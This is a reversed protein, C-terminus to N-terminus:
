NSERLRYTSFTSNKPWIKSISIKNSKCTKFVGQIRFDCKQRKTQTHTQTDTILMVWFCIVASVDFKTNVNTDHASAVQFKKYLDSLFETYM